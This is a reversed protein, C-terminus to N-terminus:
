RSVGHWAAAVAPRVRVWRIVLAIGVLWVGLSILQQVTWVGFVMPQNARWFELLFRVTAYGLLYVGFVLGPRRLLAPTQLTRLCLYLLILAASELLQVPVVPQPTNPYQIALWGTTPTGVCCQRVFCGIRSFGHALAVFPIVHDSARLFSLHQCRLYVFGALAGGLFGGYWVKGPPVHLFAEWHQIVFLLRGGLLGGLLVFCFGIWIQAPTLLRHECPVRREAYAILWAATLSTALAVLPWM